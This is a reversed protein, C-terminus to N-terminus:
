IITIVQDIPIRIGETYLDGVLRMDTSFNKNKILDLIDQAIDAFRIQSDINLTTLSNADIITPQNINVQAVPQGTLMLVGNFQDLPISLGSLNELDLKVKIPIGTVNPSGINVRIGKISIRSLVSNLTKQAIFLGLALFGLIAFIKQM